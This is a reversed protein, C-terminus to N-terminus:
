ANLFFRANLLKVAVEDIYLPVFIGTLLVCFFFLVFLFKTNRSIMYLM